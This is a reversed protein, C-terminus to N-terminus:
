AEPPRPDLRIPVAEARSIFFGIYADAWGYKERMMANLEARKAPVATVTYDARAGNRELELTPTEKLRAYWGSKPSGSRLWAYGDDDVVWLHTEHQAGTADTTTVIVVEGSESALIQGVFLVGIVLLLAGILRVALKMWRDALLVATAQPLSTAIELVGDRRHPAHYAERGV